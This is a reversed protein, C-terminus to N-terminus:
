HRPRFHKVDIRKKGPEVAYTFRWPGVMLHMPSEALSAWIASGEPIADLVAAIEELSKRLRALTPPAVGDLPLDFRIEFGM